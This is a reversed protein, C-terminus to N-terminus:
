MTLLGPSLWSCPSWLDALGGRHTAFQLVPCHQCRGVIILIRGYKHNEVSRILSVSDDVAIIRSSTLEDPNGDGGDVGGVVACHLGKRFCGEWYIRAQSLCQAINTQM